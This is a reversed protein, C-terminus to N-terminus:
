WAIDAAAKPRANTVIRAIRGSGMHLVRDGMEGIAANHTIILLTTGLERNVHRLVDLVLVGTTYDLAGTPEDSLLVEPGKAIARAIAM